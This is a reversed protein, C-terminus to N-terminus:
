EDDVPMPRGHVLAEAHARAGVRMGEFLVGGYRALMPLLNLAREQRGGGPFLAGRLTAVDRMMVSERRKTAAVIRRELKDARWTLQRRVGALVEPNMLADDGALAAGVAASGEDIHQRLALLAGPVDSPLSQRALRGEAANPASLEQRRMGYRTLLAEVHPELITCSWRPVALPVAAGLASAVASVQAFYAIEGPGAVYAVTPLVAREAVPRLLVNPSLREAAARAAMEHADRLPVRVKKGATRTFVLSRGEVDAVQPKHGMARMNAARQVLAEEIQAGKQLASVLIPREAGLLAPHSADLVAVGLPELLVRLLTLYAGGVTQQAHYALRAVDLVSPDVASGAAAALADLADNVDGLPVEAMPVGDTAERSMTLREAGRATAIWTDCAEAFDADDTAAWFVPATAVGTAREIADALELAAIAKSWTYIPGGFLGPQQGTTVVVGGSAAVRDLRAAAEGRAGFALSLRSRWDPSATAQVERVRWSWGEPSTPRPPYWEVPASGVIAERALAVGGLAESVVRLGSMPARRVDGGDASSRKASRWFFSRRVCPTTRLDYM